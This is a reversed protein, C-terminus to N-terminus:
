QKAIISEFVIEVEGLEHRKSWFLMQIEYKNKRLLIEDYLWCADSFDFDRTLIEANVFTLRKLSCCSNRSDIEMFFDKGVFGSNVIKCDHMKNDKFISNICDPLYPEIEKYYKCYDNIAKQNQNELEELARKNKGFHIGTGKQCNKYWQKTFYKM